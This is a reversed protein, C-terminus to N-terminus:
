ANGGETPKAGFRFRCCHNGRVMCETHEIPAGVFESMFGLDFACVEPHAQALQHFVCNRAVIEGGSAAPVASADVDRSAEYGLEGMVKALQSVRDESGAPTRERERMSQATKKGLESLRQRVGEGGLERKLLDVLLDAFWSYRRAFHEAGKETLVYLHEPRGGSPQTGGRAVLGDRELSALHQRVATRTIGLDSVLRDITRGARDQLLAHLLERQRGGLNNVSLM